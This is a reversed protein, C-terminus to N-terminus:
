LSSNALRGTSTATAEDSMLDMEEIFDRLSVIVAM